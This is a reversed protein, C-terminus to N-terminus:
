TYSLLHGQKSPLFASLLLVHTRISNKDSRCVTSIVGRLCWIQTVFTTVAWALQQGMASDLQLTWDKIIPLLSTPLDELQEWPGTLPAFGEYLFCSELARFSLFRLVGEAAQM